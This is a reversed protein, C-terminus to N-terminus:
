DAEFWAEVTFSASGFHTISPNNGFDVYDDVGDFGLSRNIQPPGPVCAQPVGSVCAAVSRACVGLGCSVTGLGDDVQGNCDNDIGDCVEPSPQGPVCTQPQGNVCAPITRACAGVGCTITGLGDDVQGNCDNDIGDCVEPSPQGPVCTQPQGNVCA